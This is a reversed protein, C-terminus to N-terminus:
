WTNQYIYMCKWFAPDDQGRVWGQRLEGGQRELTLNSKEFHNSIPSTLPLGSGFFWLSSLKLSIRDTQRDSFGTNGWTGENLVCNGKHYPHVKSGSGPGRMKWILIKATNSIKSSCIALYTDSGMIYGTVGYDFECFYRLKLIIYM